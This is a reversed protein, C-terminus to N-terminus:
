EFTFVKGFAWVAVREKKQASDDLWVAHRLICAFRAGLFFARPTRNVSVVWTLDGSRTVTARPLALIALCEPFFERLQIGLENADSFPLAYHGPRQSHMRASKIPHPLGAGGRHSRLVVCPDAATWTLADQTEANQLSVCLFKGESKDRWSYGTAPIAADTADDGDWETLAEASFEDRM